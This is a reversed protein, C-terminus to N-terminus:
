IALGYSLINDESVGVAEGVFTYGLNFHGTAKGLSKTLIGNFVYDIEGSGLGKTQDDTDTKFTFTFALGPISGKSENLIRCKTYLEIDGGGTVSHADEQNLFLYPFTLDLEMRQTMGYKLVFSSTTEKDNNSAKLYDLGLEIEFRDPELTYIDDTALPRGPYVERMTLLCVLGILWAMKLMQLVSRLGSLAKM